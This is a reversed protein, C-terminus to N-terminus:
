RQLKVTFEGWTLSSNHSLGIEKGHSFKKSWEPSSKTRQTLMRPTKRKRRRWKRKGALSPRESPKRRQRSASKSRGPLRLMPSSGAASELSAIFTTSPATPRCWRRGGPPYRHATRLLLGPTQLQQHATQGQCQRHNTAAMGRRPPRLLLPLPLRLRRHSQTRLLPPSDGRFNALRRQMRHVGIMTAAVVVRSPRRLGPGNRRPQLRQRPALLPAHRRELGGCMRWRLRQPSQHLSRAPPIVMRRQQLHPQPLLLLPLQRLPARRRAWWQHDTRHSSM